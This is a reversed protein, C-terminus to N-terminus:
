FSPFPSRGYVNCKDHATIDFVIFHASGHFLSHAKRSASVSAILGSARLLRLRFVVFSSPSDSHRRRVSRLRFYIVPHASVFVDFSHRVSFASRLRFIRVCASVYHLHHFASSYSCAIFVIRQVLQFTYRVSFPIDSEAFVVYASSPYARIIRVRSFYQVHVIRRIVQRSLARRLLPRRASRCLVSVAIVSQLTHYPFRHRIDNICVPLLAARVGRASHSLHLVSVRRVFVFVVPEAIHYFRRSLYLLYRRSRLLCVLRIRSVVPVSSQKRHRIRVPLSYRVSIVSASVHYGRASRFSVNFVYQVIFVSLSRLYVVSVINHRLVGVIFLIQPQLFYLRRFAATRYLTQRIIVVIRAIHRPPAIVPKLRLVIVSLKSFMIVFVVTQVPKHFRLSAIRSASQYYVVHQLLIVGFIIICRASVYRPLFLARPSHSSFAVRYGIHIQRVIVLVFVVRRLRM